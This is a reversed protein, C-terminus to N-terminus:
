LEDRNFETLSLNFGVFFSRYIAPQIPFREQGDVSYRYGLVNKQNTINDVSVYIVTFMKKITTLYSVTVAFNHYDPAKDQLFRWSNPDYYPRGSAYNYSASFNTQLKEVFYKAIVNLNHTSVYDPTVQSVYNQYLRRTDIVSYSIWYDFNKISRKDRWFFDIGQAYGFGSNDVNGYIFRYPNPNYPVGNERVLHDYSKYYGEVRFTRNNKAVQYNLMYHIAQQFDPRYGFLLYNNAASQYFIGTAAAIQSSKGTKLAFALRPSVNGKALLKSYEARVGPKVAFFKAPKWELEAYGASIFDEFKGTITDFQQTYGFNQLETGMLLSLANNPHYILEARGQVRTDNRYVAFDSWSINDTNNSFSVGTGYKWKQNIANKFTTNLYTNQNSIGFNIKQGANAPDNINIGTKNFTHSANMKFIGNGETESIFRTSFGGGQPVDYFDVTSRALLFFPTLNNYYGAFEVANNEMLKEGAMYVGAFNAGVNINNERPLDNTELDVVSSLAQGYRATYGGTSFSTGKFQFPNFRSRQAVGPVTSNFANQAVLGDIIMVSENVDGGRVMLGTQDGGNRQVGPLTQLAGVIDGNAGATTVIEIPDLVAVARDNSAISGATIIFEDLTEEIEFVFSVNYVSDNLVVPQSMPASGTKEAILVQPGKEETVLTFNGANNTAVVDFTNELYVSALPVPEGKTNKVTGMITSQAFTVAPLILFLIAYFQKM